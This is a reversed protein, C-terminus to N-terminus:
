TKHVSSLNAAFSANTHNSPFMFEFTRHSTIESSPQREAHAGNVSFISTTPAKVALMASACTNRDFRDTSQKKEVSASTAVLASVYLQEPSACREGCGQWQCTLNDFGSAHPSQPQPAGPQQQLISAVSPPETSM